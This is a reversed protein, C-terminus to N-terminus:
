RRTDPATGHKVERRVQGWALLTFIATGGIVNGALVPLFFGLLAPRFGLGDEMMLMGMEVSGAIIHTFDGAGILWTFTLVIFFANGAASPMMWVIAAVLMGAPMARLFSEWAGMGVAHRSIEFMATRVEPGLVATQSLFNAAVM